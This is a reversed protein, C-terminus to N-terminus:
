IPKTYHSPGSYKFVISKADLDDDNTINAPFYEYMPFLIKGKESALKRLIATRKISEIPYVIVRPYERDCAAQSMSSCIDDVLDDAGPEIVESPPKVFLTHAAENPERTVMMGEYPDFCPAGIPKIGHRIYKKVSDTKFKYYVKYWLTQFFIKLKGGLNLPGPENRARQPKFNELENYNM